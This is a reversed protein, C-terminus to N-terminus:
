KRVKYWIQVIDNEERKIKELSLKKLCYEGEFLNIGKNIVCPNYNIIIRDVLDNALFLNNIRAGGSVFIKKLGRM